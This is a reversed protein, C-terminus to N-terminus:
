GQQTRQKPYKGTRGVTLGRCRLRVRDVGQALTSVHDNEAVAGGM